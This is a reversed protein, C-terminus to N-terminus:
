IIIGLSPIPQHKDPIGDIFRPLLNKSAGRVMNARELIEGGAKIVKNLKADLKDLHLTYGYRYSISLNKIFMCGGTKESNVNVAWLYGPYHSNLLESARKALIEDCATHTHGDHNEIHQTVTQRPHTPIIIM